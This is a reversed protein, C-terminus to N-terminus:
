KPMPYYLYSFLKEESVEKTAMWKELAEGCRRAFDHALALMEREQPPLDAPITPSVKAQARAAVPALAVCALTLIAFCKPFSRTM